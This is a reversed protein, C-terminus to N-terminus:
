EPKALGSLFKEDAKSLGGSARIRALLDPRKRATAELM